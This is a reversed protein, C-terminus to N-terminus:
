SYFLVVLRGVDINTYVWQCNVKEVQVTYLYYAMLQAFICYVILHADVFIYISFVNFDLGRFNLRASFYPQM